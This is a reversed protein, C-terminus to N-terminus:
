WSLYIFVQHCWFLYCLFASHGSSLYLRKWNKRYHCEVGSPSFNPSVKFVNKDHMISCLHLWLYPSCLCPVGPERGPPILHQCFVQKSHAFGLTQNGSDCFLPLPPPPFSPRRSCLLTLSLSSLPETALLVPWKGLPDLNPNWYWCPPECGSIELELLDRAKPEWLRLACVYICAFCGCLYFNKFSFFWSCFMGLVWTKSCYSDQDSLSGKVYISVFVCCVFTVVSFLFCAYYQNKKM